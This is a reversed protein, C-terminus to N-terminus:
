FRSSVDFNFYSDPYPEDVLTFHWWETDIGKFGHSRMTSTLLARNERQELTINSYSPHSSIDFLDFRGGMDVDKGTKMDFLTLDVTSGRSHGSYRAIYGSSFLADKDVSPYFFEKMRTNELDNAWRVFHDVAKQPRYADYVKLRYGKAKLDDSVLKLANAAERTLLAIPQNYGDIREGVFNYSSYYRIDLMIDPVAETLLVFKTDANDASALNSYSSTLLLACLCTRILLKRKSM